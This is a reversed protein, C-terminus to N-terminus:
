SFFSTLSVLNTFIIMRPMVSLLTPLQLVPFTENGSFVRFHSKPVSIGEFFLRTPILKITANWMLCLRYKAETM